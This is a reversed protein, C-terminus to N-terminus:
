VNSVSMLITMSIKKYGRFQRASVALPIHHPFCVNSVSLSPIHMSNICMGPSTYLINADLQNTWSPTGTAVSNILCEICEVCNIAYMNWLTPNGCHLFSHISHELCENHSIPTYNRANKFIPLKGVNAPIELSHNLCEICDCIKRSELM